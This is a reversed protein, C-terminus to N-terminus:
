QQAEDSCSSENDLFTEATTMPFRWQHYAHYFSQFSDGQPPPPLKMQRIGVDCDRFPWPPSWSHRLTSLVHPLFSQLARGSGARFRDPEEWPQLPLFIPHRYEASLIANALNEDNQKVVISTLNEIMLTQWITKHLRAMTRVGDKTFQFLVTRTVAVAQVIDDQFPTPDYLLGMDKLDFAKGSHCKHRYKVTGHKYISLEVTGKYLIYFFNEM